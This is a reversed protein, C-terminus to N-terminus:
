SGLRYVIDNSGSQSYMISGLNSVTLDRCVGIDVLWFLSDLFCSSSSPTIFVFFSV